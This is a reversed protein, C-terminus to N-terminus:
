HNLLYNTLRIEHGACSLISLKKNNKKKIVYNEFIINVKNYFIM